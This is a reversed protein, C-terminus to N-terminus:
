WDQVLDYPWNKLSGIDYVNTYGLDVLKAASEESRNGSRCCLILVQNKDPLERLIETGITESPVNIADEIHGTDFEERTRVDVIQCDPSTRMMEIAEKASVLM